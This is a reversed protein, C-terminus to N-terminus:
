SLFKNSEQLIEYISIVNEIFLLFIICWELFDSKRNQLVEQLFHINHEVFKLKFDLNGFRQAVEYEERLYEYIEAYKADRWAIESREFLGVKLIVDALNSNAKGVLQLLKKKDMTFTGTKEMGRNIDAFEEVLSDVQSVFYDLAISQGLVSGIIRIGDTDLSKLVIYDPGGRMDKVLHPKEKVAYDDKRMELLLGSAHRRVLELYNDVEHEEINFLVASGYQFVVMYQYSSAKELMGPRGNTDSNFNRFRLAISNSSRSSPPIINGLNEAQINKLNISTSLFYAKVPIKVCEDDEQAGLEYNHDLNPPVTSDFDDSDVPVRYPIASSAGFGLFRRTLNFPPPPFFRSEPPRSLHHTTTKSAAAIRHLFLSVTRWRGNM